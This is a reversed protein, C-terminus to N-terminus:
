PSGHCVAVDCSVGCPSRPGHSVDPSTHSDSFKGEQTSPSRRHHQGVSLLRQFGCRGVSGPDSCRHVSDCGRTGWARASRGSQDHGRHHLRSRASISMSCSMKSTVLGLAFDSQTFDVSLPPELGKCKMDLASQLKGMFSQVVAHPQDNAFLDAWM